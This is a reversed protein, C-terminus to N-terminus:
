NSPKKAMPVSAAGWDAFVELLYHFLTALTLYFQNGNDSDFGDYNFAAYGIMALGLLGDLRDGLVRGTNAIWNGM